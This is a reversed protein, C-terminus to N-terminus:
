RVTFGYSGTMRHADASVARWDVKYAGAPLPRTPLVVLSDGDAGVSVKVAVPAGATSVVVGSFKPDLRETFHLTLRPPAAVTADAAPEEAVLKAHAQAETGTLLALAALAAASRIM